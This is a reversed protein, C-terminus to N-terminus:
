RGSPNNIVYSGVAKDHLTQKRDDWLPWLLDLVPLFPVLGLGAQVLLRLVASGQTLLRGNADVTKVKVVGQGISYGRQAILYVRNYLGVALTAVPFLLLSVCCMGGAANDGFTGAMGAFVGGLVFWLVMAVAGVILSDIIYGIARNGWTAYDWVLGGPGYVAQPPVYQAEPQASPPPPPPPQPAQWTPQPPPPPAPRPVEAGRQVPNGCVPCFASSEPVSSGCNSCFM